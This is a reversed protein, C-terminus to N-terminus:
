KVNFIHYPPWKTKLVLGYNSESLSEWGNVNQALRTQNKLILFCNQVSMNECGYLIEAFKIFTNEYIFSIYLNKYFHSLCVCAHVGGGGCVCVCMYSTEYYGLGSRKILFNLVSFTNLM